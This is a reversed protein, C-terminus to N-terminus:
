NDVIGQEEIPKTKEKEYLAVLAEKLERYYSDEHKCEPYDENFKAIEKIRIDLYSETTLYISTKESNSTMISILHSYYPILDAPQTIIIDKIEGNQRQHIIGGTKKMFCNFDDDFHIFLFDRFDCKGCWKSM